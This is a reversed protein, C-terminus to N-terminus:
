DADPDKYKDFYMDGLDHGRNGNHRKWARGLTKLRSEYEVRAESRLDPGAFGKNVAVVQVQESGRVTVSVLITEVGHERFFAQMPRAFEEKLTALVMYNLGVTRPDRPVASAGQGSGPDPTRGLVQDSGQVDPPPMGRSMEVLEQAVEANIKPQLDGSGKAYGVLYALVILAVLGLCIVVMMGRPVRLVIPASSGVWWPAGGAGGGSTAGRGAAAADAPGDVPPAAPPRRMIEIPPIGDKRAM